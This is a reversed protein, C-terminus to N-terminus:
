TQADRLRRRAVFLMVGLGALMLAYTGPEPTNSVALATTVRIHDGPDGAKWKIRLTDGDLQTTQDRRETGTFRRNRYDNYLGDGDVDIGFASNTTRLAAASRHVGLIATSFTIDAEVVGQCAPDFFIYWSKVLDNGPTLPDDARKEDIYFLFSQDIRGVGVPAAGAYEKFYSSTDVVKGDIRLSDVRLHEEAQAPAGAAILIGAAMALCLASNKM